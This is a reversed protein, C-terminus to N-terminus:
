TLKQKQAMVLKQSKTVMEGSSGNVKFPIPPQKAPQQNWGNTKGQNPPYYNNNGGSGNSPM